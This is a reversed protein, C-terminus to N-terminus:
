RSAMSAQCAFNPCQFRVTASYQLGKQMEEPPIKLKTGDKLKVEMSEFPFMEPNPM